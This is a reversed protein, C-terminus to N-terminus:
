DKYLVTVASGEVTVSGNVPTGGAAPASGSAAIKWGTGAPTYEFNSGSHYIVLIESWSDGNNAARIYNMVAGSQDVWTDVNQDVEDWTNMRFGPHAKRLEIFSAYYDVIEQANTKFNWDFANVSDPAIYSDHIEHKTRAFEEGGHIFPIGQSTLVIGNAYQQLRRKYAENGGHGNANAWINIKDWLALNDHASVYNIAQEPDTTYMMDWDAIPAFPNRTSVDRIAGRSGAQIPFLDGNTQNFIFGNGFEGGLGNGDGRIADRFKPNFAGYHAGEIRAITGLRLRNERWDDAFGIWPEGYTLLNRPHEAHLTGVIHGMEEYSFVGALDFRFGGMNYESAWYRLSDLIMQSIMPNDTDVTNGTGTLDWFVGDRQLSYQPSIPGLMSEFVNEETHMFDRGDPIWVHNYVVDMIVRIGAKHFENIMTKVEKIRNVYDTPDMSYREEPVNYNEPDYGWNYCTDGPQHPIGLTDWIQAYRNERYISDKDSCTAYDYFPLIQVHTVGLEKLHDIGTSLGTGNVRTGSEVMGLFKGRKDASVGSSADITFDRVHVEYVVADERENLAPVPAWGGDPETRSLDVVINNDTAPEVMVGYPDRVFYCDTPDDSKRTTYRCQGTSALQEDFNMVFNYSKLHHDGDVTVAYIDANKDAYESNLLSTDTVKQLRHFQGDLRLGVDPNTPSWIAFTSRNAEYTVGLRNIVVDGVPQETKTYTASATAQGDSNVGCLWLTSSQGVALSDGLTIQEGNSFPTGNTCTSGIATGLQYRGSGNSVFLSIAINDGTFSSTGPTMSVSPLVVESFGCSAESQWNDGDPCGTVDIAVYDGSQARGNDNFVANTSVVGQPMEFRCWGNDLETMPQGPWVTNTAPPANWYHVYCFEWGAPKEFYLTLAPTGGGVIVTSTDSLGEFTATCTTEGSAAGFLSVPSGGQPQQTIQVISSDACSWVLGDPDVHPGSESFMIAVNPSLGSNLGINIIEADITVSLPQDVVDAVSVSVSDSFGQWSGQCTTQGAGQATVLGSSSISAVSSASCSWNVNSASVTSGDSMQGQASLQVSDGVLLSNSNPTVDVGVPNVVDILGCTATPQWGSSGQPCGSTDIGIYNGTQQGNGDNFVMNAMSVGDQFSFRCWDDNVEDMLTGPWAKTTAPSANWYYIYCADWSAPKNFYVTLTDPIVIERKTYVYSAEDANGNSDQGCLYLTTSDDVGLQAGLSIQQNNSYVLGADCANDVDVSYRGTGNEIGLTVNISNGTFDSSSPAASVEPAPPLPLNCQSDPQWATGNPCGTVDVGIYDGTKDAGNDNFVLNTSTVGDPFDFRCWGGTMTQMQKGPWQTAPEPDAAWYHVFCTEWAAPKQFYVTIGDPVVIDQKTYTYQVEAQADEGQGCLYLTTSEGDSLGNGITIVEGNSYSLGTNCADDVDVGFFGSGNAVSLMIELTPTTFTSSGPSASVEPEPATELEVSYANTRDNYTVAYTGAQTVLIDDGDLEAINDAPANDGYNAVWDGAIDFKFRDGGNADGEGDFTVSARWLQAEEDCQMDTIGWNNLTGRITMSSEACGQPPEGGTTWIAWDTGSAAISWDAGTPTWEVNGMKLAVKNDVIAAYLGQEAAVINVVSESHLGNDKRIAMLQDIQAGHGMDFYHPWYVTPIGPHTMIYAYGMVIKDCDVAWHYQGSFCTESPGTDHNDLFTVAYKPDLGILGAPKGAADKLRWFQYDGQKSEGEKYWGLVRNLIGKTTFDFAASTHGTANVWNMVDQRHADPLKGGVDFCGQGDDDHCLTKWYEGVSFYPNTANNYIENAWGGYGKVYDYRWGDFGIGQMRGSMWSSISQQVDVNTHDIDRAAGYTEGSDTQGLPGECTADQRTPNVGEDNNTIATTDWDPNVFDCWGTAGGRHNIVIDAIAKMNANHVATLASALEGESGYFSDLVNLQTPIYGQPFFFSSSICAPVM